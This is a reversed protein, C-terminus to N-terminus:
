LRSSIGAWTVMAPTGYTAGNDTSFEIQVQSNIAATEDGLVTMRLKTSNAGSIVAAGFSPFISGTNASGFPSLLSFSATGGIITSAFTFTMATVQGAGDFGFMYNTLKANDLSANTNTVTLNTGSQSGAFTATSTELHMDGIATATNAPVTTTIALNYTLDSTTLSLATDAAMNSMNLIGSVAEGAVDSCSNYTVTAATASTYNYSKTGSVTCNNTTVAATVAAPSSGQARIKQVLDNGLRGITKSITIASPAASTATQVGTPLSMAGTVTDIAAGAVAPANTAAITVQITPFTVNGGGDGDHDEGGGCGALGALLCSAALYRFGHRNTIHSRNM